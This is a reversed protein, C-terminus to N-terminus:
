ELILTCSRAFLTSSAVNRLWMRGCYINCRRLHSSTCQWAATANSILRRELRRCFKKFLHLWIQTVIGLLYTFLYAELWRSLKSKYAWNNHSALFTQSLGRVTTGARFTSVVQLVQSYNLPCNYWLTSNSESRENNPRWRVQAYQEDNKKWRGVAPCDTICLVVDSNQFEQCTQHKIVKSRMSSFINEM